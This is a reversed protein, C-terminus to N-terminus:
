AKKIAKGLNAALGECVLQWRHHAMQYNHQVWGPDECVKSFEEIKPADPLTINITINKTTSGFM